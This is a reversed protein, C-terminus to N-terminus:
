RPTSIGLYTSHTTSPKSATGGPPCRFSALSSEYRCIRRCRRGPTSTRCGRSRGSSLIISVICVADLKHRGAIGAPCVVLEIRGRFGERDLQSLTTLIGMLPDATVRNLADEFQAYRRFPFLDPVLVLDISYPRPALRIGYLM